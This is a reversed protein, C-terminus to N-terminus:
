ILFIRKKKAPVKEQKLPPLLFHYHFHAQPNTHFNSVQSFKKISNQNHYIPPTNPDCEYPTTRLNRWAFFSKKVGRGEKVCIKWLFFFKTNQVDCTRRCGGGGGGGGLAYRLKSVFGWVQRLWITMLNM